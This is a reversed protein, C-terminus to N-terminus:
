GSTSSKDVSLRKVKLNINIVTILKQYKTQKYTQTTEVPTSKKISNIWRSILWRIRPSLAEGYFTTNIKGSKRGVKVGYKLGKEM